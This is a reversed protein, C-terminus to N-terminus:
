NRLDPHTHEASYRTLWREIAEAVSRNEPAYFESLNRADGAVSRAYLTFEDRGSVPAYDWRLMAVARWSFQRARFLQAFRDRQECREAVVRLAEADSVRYVGHEADWMEGDHSFVDHVNCAGSEYQTTITAYYPKQSEDTVYQVSRVVPHGLFREPLHM